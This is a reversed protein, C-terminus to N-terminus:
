QKVLTLSHASSKLVMKPNTGSVTGSYYETTAGFNLTFNIKSHNFSGTLTAVQTGNISENGNFNGTAAGQPADFFTFQDNANASNLWNGDIDPVYIDTAAGGGSKGCSSILSCLVLMSGILYLKYHTKM